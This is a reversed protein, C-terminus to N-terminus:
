VYGVDHTCLELILAFMVSNLGLFINMSFVLKIACEM